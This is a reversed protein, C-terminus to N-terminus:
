AFELGVSQGGGTSEGEGKNPTRRRQLSPRSTIREWPDIFSLHRPDLHLRM